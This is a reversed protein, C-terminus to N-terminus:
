FSVEFEGFIIEKAKSVAKLDDLVPMLLKRDEESIRLLIEEKLSKSHKAKESRVKGLIEVFRDFVKEGVKSELKKDYKSFESIHISDLDEFDYLNYIEETIYPMIPAFLKLTNLILYRLTYQASRRDEVGRVDPNYLRDKAIELYNDCIQNWFFSEILLRSKSYEYKEFSDNVEKILNNFKSLIGADILNLEVKKNDFDELHMIAFKSANWLKTITKLGTRVDDERYALDKGLTACASWFRLADAGYKNLVTSPEVFNGLSKSMKKGNSGLGHGSIIIDKWPIDNDQFYSKVISYFAWTRIIDHAQPRLSMPLIKTKDYADNIKTTVSSTMWTDMVDMEPILDEKNYGEPVSGDRPDIPLEKLKPLVVKGNKKNYWVPFPVGYFRQRSITWDWQLNEVWHEYRTKMFEPHWNIKKGQKILKNKYDLVNIVWQPTKLFEIEAGSRESVNVAHTIKEQNTLLKNKKLDEIISERAEKIKLGSYNGALENLKGDKTICIRLELNYKSWKEIDEKDGFTCVMMLGTGKDIEVSEDELIPVEYDFLPVKAKLDKLKKYRKDKPNYFLGVCAPLLEPRTTSIVLNEEETKFIIDNFYSSKEVDELDAQALSTQLKVDWIIPIDKRELFGKKYLEIFSKQAVLTSRPDITSYTLNWDVSIGLSDWLNKYNEIGKKTEDLCLKTFEKRSIKSKNVNHTKEVFRETPLGNDDFGMPFFVNFGKMRKYRAIFEFQSYHMAHGVHLHSASVYPPPTDISYIKKKSKSDFKYIEKKKWYENWKKESAKFDYKKPLEM